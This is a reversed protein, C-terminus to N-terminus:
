LIKTKTIAGVSIPIFRFRNKKKKCFKEGCINQTKEFTAWFATKDM